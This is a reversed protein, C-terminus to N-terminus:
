ARAEVVSLLVKVVPKKGWAANIAARVARHVAEQVMAFDTRRKPPISRLTGDIADLVIERMADGDVGTAPIGELAVGPESLVAGRQSLTLAVVVMGAYSLKRRARVPGEADPVILNGDRFLRGVPAEDILGAPSPWLKLIEGDVMTFTEKAGCARALKAHERLHRAEGHIPVVM